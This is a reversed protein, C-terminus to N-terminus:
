TGLVTRRGAHDPESLWGQAELEEVVAAAHNYGWQARRQLYSVSGGRRGEANPPQDLFIQKAQALADTPITM